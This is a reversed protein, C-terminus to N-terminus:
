RFIQLKKNWLKHILVRKVIHSQGLEILHNSTDDKQENNIKERESAWILVVSNEDRRIM